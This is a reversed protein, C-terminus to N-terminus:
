IGELLQIVMTKRRTASNVRKSIKILNQKELYANVKDLPTNVYGSEARSKIAMLEPARGIVDKAMNLPICKFKVFEKTMVKDVKKNTYKGYSVICDKYFQIVRDIADQMENNGSTMAVINGINEYETEVVKKAWEWDSRKITLRDSYNIVTILGCYRLMKVFMRSAMAREYITEGTDQRIRYERQVGIIERHLEPDDVSIIYPKFLEGESSDEICTSVLDNFKDIINNSYAIRINLNPETNIEDIVFMSERPILGNQVQDEQSYAKKLEVPTSEGIRSIAVARISKIMKASDTFSSASTYKNWAGQGYLNLWYEKMGSKDGLGSQENIGKENTIIGLCKQQEYLKYLAVPGSLRGKYFFDQIKGNNGSFQIYCNEVADEIESKGVGTEAALTLYMNLATPKALGDKNNIDVNFKRGCVSSCIFMSAVFAITDDKYMMFEKTEEIFQGLLGPARPMKKNSFDGEVDIEEIEFEASNEEEARAIAGEVLRDVEKFRVEWRESGSDTSGMLLTKLLAVTNAKSLGDKIYQYSLTRLSEHYEKGSRINEHFDDLNESDDINSIREAAQEEEIVELRSDKYSIIEWAEGTYYQYSEFLKDNPNDRTAVFWPQSWTDMEKVHAIKVRKRGLLKLIRAINTKLDKKKYENTEIVARFKNKEEGEHSHTTYIFHNYGLETLANHVSLPSPANEDNHGKDGDIILLKSSNLNSDKRHGNEFVGRCWYASHKKGKRCKTLQEGLEEFTKCQLREEKDVNTQDGIFYSVNFTM